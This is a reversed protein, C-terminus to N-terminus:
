QGVIRLEIVRREVLGHEILRQGISIAGYREEYTQGPGRATVGQVIWDEGFREASGLRGSSM